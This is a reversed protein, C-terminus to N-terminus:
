TKPKAYYVLQDFDLDDISPGFKPMELKYFIELSKLRHELMREPEQLDTSIKRITEETLGQLYLDYEVTNALELNM